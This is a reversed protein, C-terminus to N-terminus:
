LLRLGTHIKSDIEKDTSCVAMKYPIDQVSFERYYYRDPYEEPQRILVPPEGLRVCFSNLPLAM